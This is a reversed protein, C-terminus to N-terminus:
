VFKLAGSLPVFMKQLLRDSIGHRNHWEAYSQSDVRAYYDQSGFLMPLLNRVLSLKQPWTFYRNTLLTPLLHLPSPLPATRFAFREGDELTYTLVHEKWLINDYNGLERMLSFIEEYAGFFVHLGSELWDGDEDRWASWKGGLINRKELVEVAYGAETLRRAAALGALGGGGILVTPRATRSSAGAGGIHSVLRM